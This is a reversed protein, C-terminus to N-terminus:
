PSQGQRHVSVQCRLDFRADALVDNWQPALLQWRAPDRRRFRAALGIFDAGTRRALVIARDMRNVVTHAAMRELDERQGILENVDTMVEVDVRVHLQGNQWLTDIRTTSALIRLTADGDEQLSVTLTGNRVRNQLFLLGMTQFKDATAVMRDGKFVATEGVQYRDKNGSLIPIVIERDPELLQSMVDMFEARVVRSRQANINFLDIIALAPQTTLPSEITLLEELEMESVAQRVNGRVRIDRHFFDLVPELGQRALDASFVVLRLHDLHPRKSSQAYLNDIAASITRGEAILLHTPRGVDEGRQAPVGIQTLLRYGGDDSCDVGLVMVFALEELERRSWCAPMLLLATLLTCVVFLRCKSSM